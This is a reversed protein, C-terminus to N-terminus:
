GTDAQRLAGDLNARARDLEGEENAGLVRDTEPDVVRLENGPLLRGFSGKRFVERPTSCPLGTLFSSTESLGYGVPMNWRADAKVSPHRTFVSKGYVKTCSSLNTSAWDPHEELSRAQHAFVHPETVHEREILQLAQGPEFMEQMVWTGGAALTAGMAANLGATWFMPFPCWVRTSEDRGFM